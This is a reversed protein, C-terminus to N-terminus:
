LICFVPTFQFNQAVNIVHTNGPAPVIDPSAVRSQLPDNLIAHVVETSLAPSSIMTSIM